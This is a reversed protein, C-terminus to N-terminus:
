DNDEPRNRMGDRVTMVACTIFGLIFAAMSIVVLAVVINSSM